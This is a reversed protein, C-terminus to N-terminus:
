ENEDDEDESLANFVELRALHKKSKEHNQFANITKFKKNCLRCYFGIEEEEEDSLNENDVNSNQNEFVTKDSEQASNLNSTEEDEAIEEEEDEDALLKKNKKRKKGGKGKKGSKPANDYYEAANEEIKKLNDELGQLSIWESEVYTAFAKNGEEIVKLRHDASKKRNEEVKAELMKRYADM